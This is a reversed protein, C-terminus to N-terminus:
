GSADDNKKRSTLSKKNSLRAGKPSADHIVDDKKKKKKKNEPLGCLRRYDILSEKKRQYLARAFSYKEFSLSFLSTIRVYRRRRRSRCCRSATM